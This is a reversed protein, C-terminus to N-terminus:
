SVPELGASLSTLAPVHLCSHFGLGHSVSGVPESEQDREGAWPHIEWPPSPGRVDVLLEFFAECVLGRALM